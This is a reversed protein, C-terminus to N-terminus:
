SEAPYLLSAVVSVYMAYLLARSYYATDEGRQAESKAKEYTKQDVIHSSSNEFDFFHDVLQEELKEPMQMGPSNHGTSTHVRTSQIVPHNLVSPDGTEDINLIASPGRLKTRGAPGITLTGVRNSLEEVLSEHSEEYSDSNEDSTGAFTQPMPLATSQSDNLLGVGHDDALPSTQSTLMQRTDEPLWADYSDWPSGSNGIRCSEELDTSRGSPKQTLEQQSEPQQPRMGTEATLQSAKNRYGETGMLGKVADHYGMNGLITKLTLAKEDEMPPTQLGSDTMFRCLEVVRDSLLEIAM